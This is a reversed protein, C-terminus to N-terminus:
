FNSRNTTGKGTSDLFNHALKRIENEKLKTVKDVFMPEIILVLNLFRRLRTHLCKKVRSRKSTWIKKSRSSSFNELYQGNLLKSLSGIKCEGRLISILSKLLEYIHLERVTYLKNEEKLSGLSEFGRKYFIIKILWKTLDELNKLM